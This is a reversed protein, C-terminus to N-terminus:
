KEKEKLQELAAKASERVKEDADDRLGELTKEIGMDATLRRKTKDAETEDFGEQFGFCVGLMFASRTRNRNAHCDRSSGRRLSRRITASSSAPLNRGFTLPKM